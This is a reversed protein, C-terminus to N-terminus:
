GSREQTKFPAAGRVEEEIPGALPAWGPDTQRWWRDGEAGQGTPAEDAWLGVTGPARAFAARHDRWRTQGRELAAGMGTAARGRVASCAHIPSAPDTLNARGWPICM